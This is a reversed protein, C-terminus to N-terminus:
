WKMPWEATYALWVRNREAVRDDVLEEDLSYSYTYALRVSSDETVRYTLSPTLSFYREDKDRFQGESKTLYFSGSFRLRFRAAVKYDASCFVRDVNIPEGTSDYNLDHTYGGSLSSAEWSKKVKINAVGGFSDDTGTNVSDTQTYRVGLFGTFNLTESFQHALGFSLGYNDVKSVISDYRSYNPQVTFVDLGDNFKRNYSLVLSDNTYDVYGRFAYNTKQRSGELDLFSKETMQYTLGAGGIFRERESRVMLLGTEELQSDLTTDKVYTFDGKLSLRELVRYTGDAQFKYNETNLDSDHLYRLVDVSGKSKLNLVDTDYHFTFAPTVAVFYDAKEDVRSFNVNDDYEGRIDISPVLTIDEATAPRPQILFLFLCLFVCLAPSKRILPIM